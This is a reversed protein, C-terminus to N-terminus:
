HAETNGQSRDIWVPQGSLYLGMDLEGEMQAVLREYESAKFDGTEIKGHGLVAVNLGYERLRRTEKDRYDAMDFFAHSFARILLQPQNSACATREDANLIKESAGHRSFLFILADKLDHGEGTGPNRFADLPVKDKIGGDTLSMSRRTDGKGISIDVRKFLPALAASARVAISIPLDAYRSSHTDFYVSNEDENRAKSTDFAPISLHKFDAPFTRALEGLHGFTPGTVSTNLRNRHESIETLRAMDVPSAARTEQEIKDLRELMSTKLVGDMYTILGPAAKGVGSFSLGLGAPDTYAKFDPTDSPDQQMVEAINEKLGTECIKEMDAGAAVTAAMMSGISTGAMGGRIRALEGAEQLMMLAGMMAQGKAGGGEAYIRDFLRETGPDHPLEGSTGADEVSQRTLANLHERAHLFLARWETRVEALRPHISKACASQKLLDDLEAAKQHLKEPLESELIAAPCKALLSASLKDFSKEGLPHPPVAPQTDLGIRSTWGPSPQFLKRFDPEDEHDPNKRVESDHRPAEPLLLATMSSAPSTVHIPM